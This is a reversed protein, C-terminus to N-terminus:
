FNDAREELIEQRIHTLSKWWLFSVGKRMILRGWVIERWIWNLETAWDHRVRQSGMIQLVGPSGTWWWSGSNVWVKWRPPSAMWGDWGRDDGEGTGLGEWCCPYFLLSFLVTRPSQGLTLNWNGKRGRPPAQGFWKTLGQNRPERKVAAEYPTSSKTVM